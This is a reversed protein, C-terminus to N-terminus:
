AIERLDPIKFDSPQESRLATVARSPEEIVPRSPTSGRHKLGSAELVTSSANAEASAEANAEVRRNNGSTTGGKRGAESRKRRLERVEDATPNFETFDNISFSDGDDLWLGAAVLEIVWRRPSSWGLVANIVKLSRPSIVGDTLNRGCYCLATVHLRFARDSLECVKEHEPFHDDLKVWTM